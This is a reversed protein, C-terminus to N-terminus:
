RDFPPLRAGAVQAVSLRLLRRQGALKASKDVFSAALSGCVRFVFGSPRRYGSFEYHGTAIYRHLGTPPHSPPARPPDKVGVARM